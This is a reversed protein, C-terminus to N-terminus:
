PWVHDLLHRALLSPRAREALLRWARALRRREGAPQDTVRGLHGIVNLLPENFLRTIAEVNEWVEHGTRYVREGLEHDGLELPAAQEAPLVRTARKAVM